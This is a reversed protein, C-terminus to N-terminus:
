DQTMRSSEKVKDYKDYIKDIIKEALKPGVGKIELLMDYFEDYDWHIYAEENPDIIISGEPVDKCAEDYGQNYMEEAFTNLWRSYENKSKKRLDKFQSFPM